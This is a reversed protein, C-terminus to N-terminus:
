SAATLSRGGALGAAPAAFSQHGSDCDSFALRAAPGALITTVNAATGAFDVGRSGLAAERRCAGGGHRAHSTAHLLFGFTLEADIPQQLWGSPTTL